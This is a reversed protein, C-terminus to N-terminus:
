RQTENLLNLMNNNMELESVVNLIIMNMVILLVYKYIHQKCTNNNFTTSSELIGPMIFM